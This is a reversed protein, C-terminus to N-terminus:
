ETGLDQRVDGVVGVITSWSQGNDGSLRRGVPDEGPWFRNAMSRNVLIVPAAGVRDQSTFFRGRVLPVGLARFYDPSASGATVQPLPQGDSTPRGEVVIGTNNSGPSGLPFSFAFGIATIGPQEQMRQQLQEFFQVSKYASDYRTWNLDLRATLVNTPDFGTDVRQLNILTRLMLGAGILLVLSVAVQSVILVSRLRLRGAAATAKGGGERLTRALDSRGSLAPLVGMVIGTVISVGLTFLLVLADIRIESARPTFQGIFSVLATLGAFAVALGLLGGAVSLVISETLLQRALRGRGAGLAARVSMEQERRVLRALTINAVNACVILLLFGATGLLILMTTRAGRTMEDGLPRFGVSFREAAPYAEAYEEHLRDAVTGLDTLARERTVGPKLLAFATLGRALRSNTTGPSSRFPCSSAPMYVDNAGPYAPLAPLVGVVTHIRDNMRFTKGVVDPDGGFERQWYEYTLLLVPEAGPQDEGERFTRGLVPQVGLTSFYSASVVGTQLRQAERENLFTFPMSHYEVVDAVTQTGTRYDLLEPPSFENNEVEASPQLLRVVRDGNAYPLPQLMTGNIVSFMAANAGIGLALTLIIAAAFGPSRRLTRLAFRIDQRLEQMHDRRQHERERLRRVARCQAEIADVDGFSRLAERRAEDATMGAAMYEQARMELHFLIEGEVDRRIGSEGHSLRFYRRM